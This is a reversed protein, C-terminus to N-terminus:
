WRRGPGGEGDQLQSRQRTTRPVPCMPFPSEGAGGRGQRRCQMRGQSTGTVGFSGQPSKETGYARMQADEHHHFRSGESGSEVRSERGPAQQVGHVPHITGPCRHILPHCHEAGWFVGDGQRSSGGLDDGGRIGRQRQGVDETSRDTIRHGAPIRHPPGAVETQARQAHHPVLGTPTM